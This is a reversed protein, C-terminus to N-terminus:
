GKVLDGLLSAALTLKSLSLGSQAIDRVTRRMREVEERRRGVYADVAAEGSVGEALM